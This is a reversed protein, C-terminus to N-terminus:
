EDASFVTHSLKVVHQPAIYLPIWPHILSKLYRGRDQINWHTSCTQSQPHDDNMIRIDCRM